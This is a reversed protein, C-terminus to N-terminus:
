LNLRQKEEPSIGFEYLNEKSNSVTAYGCSQCDWGTYDCGASLFFFRGDKLRGCCIWDEGDNEGDDIGYLETVDERCFPALSVGSGLMEERVDAQNYQEDEETPLEGACQFACEWDYDKLRELM